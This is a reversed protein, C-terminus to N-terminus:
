SAEPAPESFVKGIMRDFMMTLTRGFRGAWGLKDVSEGALLPFSMTVMEPSELYLTAVPTGKEVPASLPGDYVVKMTMERTANRPLTIQLRQNLVLPVTKRDGMWVEAQSLPVGADFLEVNEFNRFAWSMLREAEESREKISALGNVVMIVRRNGQKASATLGYGAAATHGTKLGDAGINRYLLPNRNHQTIGNHTFETESYYHYYEPFNNIIARALTALDRATTYHEPNPLGTSNVFNSATLGIERSKRTMARSFADEDGALGEAIVICADNGSQIIIGRLLDEVSATSNLPLFMTSGGSASGGTRWANESVPLQDTLSLSGDKLREFVMYATMLKSMSSPAMQEDANKEFMVSGTQADLLIAFPAKTEFTQARAPPAVAVASALVGVLLAM